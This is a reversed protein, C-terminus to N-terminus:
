STASVGGGVTATTRQSLYEWKNTMLKQTALLAQKQVEASDHTLLAMIRAKSGLTALIQKGCPHVRVFEGLDYCAVARTRSSGNELLHTLVRLLAYDEADFDTIHEHWFRESTHVPTWDLEGALVEARYREFSSMEHLTKTLIESLFELDKVLDEDTFNRNLWLSLMKSLGAGVMLEVNSNHVALNRLAAVSIRLVKEKASTKAIDVLSPIVGKLELPWQFSLVWICFVLTYQSQVDDPHNKLLTELLPLGEMGIFLQRLSPISLAQQLGFLAILTQHMTGIRLTDILWSLFRKAMPSEEPSSEKSIIFAILRCSKTLIYVDQQSELLKFLPTWEDQWQNFLSDCEHLSKDMHALVHQLANESNLMTLCKYFCQCLMQGKQTQWQVQDQPTDHDYQSIVDFTEADLVGSTHLGHWDVQTELVSANTPIEFSNM